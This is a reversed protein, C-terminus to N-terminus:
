VYKKTTYTAVIHLLDKMEFPKALFGDAGADRAIRETDKNASIMIVPIRKTQKNSKLDSCITRGDMGSMWIDLLIVDPKYERIRRETDAGVTTEVDYGADGLILSIVELISPDDDAVLIKKKSHPM